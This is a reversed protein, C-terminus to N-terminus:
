KVVSCNPSKDRVWAREKWVVIFDFLFLAIAAVVVASVSQTWFSMLLITGWVCGSMVRGISRAWEISFLVAILLIASSVFALSTWEAHSPVSVPVISGPHLTAWWAVGAAVSASLADGIKTLM